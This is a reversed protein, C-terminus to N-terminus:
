AECLPRLLVLERARVLVGGACDLVDNIAIALILLHGPRSSVVVWVSAGEVGALLWVSKLEEAGGDRTEDAFLGGSRSQTRATVVHQLWRFIYARLFRYPKIANRVPPM